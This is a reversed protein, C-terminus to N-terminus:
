EASISMIVINTQAAGGIVMDATYQLTGGSETLHNIISIATCEMPISGYPTIYDNKQTVGLRLMIATSGSRRIDIDSGGTLKIVTFGNESDSYKIRIVDGGYEYKCDCSQEICDDYDDAKIQTSIKLKFSQIDSM